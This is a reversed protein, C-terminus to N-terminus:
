SIEELKNKILKKLETKSVFGVVCEGKERLLLRVELRRQDSEFPEGELYTELFKFLRVHDARERNLRYHSWTGVKHVNLLNSQRLTALHRSVQYQPVQLADVMECVCLDSNSLIFINILRLRTEDGLVKFVESKENMIAM